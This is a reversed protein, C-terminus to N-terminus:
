EHIVGLVDEDNMIWLDDSWPVQKAAYKGWLVKAGVKLSEDASPGVGVIEGQEPQHRDKAQDPIILKTKLRANIPESRVIVRAFLPDIRM